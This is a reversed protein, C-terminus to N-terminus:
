RRRKAFDRATSRKSRKEGRAVAASTSALREAGLGHGPMPAADSDAACSLEFTKLAVNAAALTADATKRLTEAERSPPLTPLASSSREGGGGRTRQGRDGGVSGGSAGGPTKTADTTFQEVRRLLGHRRLQHARSADREVLLNVLRLSSTVLSASQGNSLTRGLLDLVGHFHERTLDCADGAKSLTAILLRFLTRQTAEGSAARRSSFKLLAPLLRSAFARAMKELADAPVLSAKELANAERTSADPDQRRRRKTEVGVRGGRAATSNKAEPAKPAESPAAAAAAPPPPPPPTPQPM